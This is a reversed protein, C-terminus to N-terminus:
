GARLSRTLERKYRRRQQRTFVDHITKGDLHDIEHQVIIAEIGSATFRGTEGSLKQAEVVISEFRRVTAGVRPVSLCSENSAADAESHEVIVPNILVTAGEDTLPGLVGDVITLDMVVIRLLHGVQPAALGIGRPTTTRMTEIMDRAFDVQDTPEGVPKSIDSLIPHPAHLVELIM